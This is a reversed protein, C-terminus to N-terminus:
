VSGDWHRKLQQIRRRCLLLMSPVLHVNNNNCFFIFFQELTAWHIALERRCSDPEMWVYVSNVRWCSFSQRSLRLSRTFGLVVLSAVWWCYASWVFSRMKSPGLTAFLPTHVASHWPQPYGKETIYLVIHNQLCFIKIYSYIRNVTNAMLIVMWTLRPTVFQLYHWQTIFSYSKLDHWAKERTGWM